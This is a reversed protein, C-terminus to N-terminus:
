PLAPPDRHLPAQSHRFFSRSPLLCLFGPKPPLLIPGMLGSRVHEERRQPMRQWQPSSETVQCGGWCPPQQLRFCLLRGHAPTEPSSAPFPRGMERFPTLAPARSCALSGPVTSAVLNRTQSRFSPVPDKVGLIDQM